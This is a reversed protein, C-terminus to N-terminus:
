VCLFMKIFLSFTSIFKWKFYSCMTYIMIGWLTVYIELIEQIGRWQNGTCLYFFLSIFHRGVLDFKSGASVM